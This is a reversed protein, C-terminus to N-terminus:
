YQPLLTVTSAAMGIPVLIQQSIKLVEERSASQEVGLIENVASEKVTRTVSTNNSV